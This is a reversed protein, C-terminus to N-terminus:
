KAAYQQWVKKDLEFPTLRRKRAERLFAAELELYQKRSSPTNKPADYGRERLFKLVHTDLPAVESEPRWYLMLMRATKMGIGPVAELHEVTLRPKKGTTPLTGLVRFAKEIRNYQGFRYKELYERLKGMGMLQFLCEFPSLMRNRPALNDRVDKLFANLKKSTPVAPKNCVLVGFM